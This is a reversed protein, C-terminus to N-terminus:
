RASTATSTRTPPLLLRAYLARPSRTSGNSGEASTTRTRSSRAARTARSATSSRSSATSGRTGRTTSSTRAAPQGIRSEQSVASSINGLPTQPVPGGSQPADGKLGGSDIIYIAVNARNALDIMGQVQWDQTSATVFGESFLVLDEQGPRGRQADWIAALAALVPAVAPPEAAVLSRSNCSRALEIARRQAATDGQGQVGARAGTDPSGASRLADQLTAVESGVQNRESMLGSGTMKFGHEVAAVLKSKDSTFTQLLQLSNSM